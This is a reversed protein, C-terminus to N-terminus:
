KSAHYHKTNMSYTTWELNDAANNKKNGDKHHVMEAWEPRHCFLMAVLRHVAITKNIGMKKSQFNVKDYGDTSKAPSMVRGHKGKVNGESSVSYGIIGGLIEDASKWVEKCGYQEGYSFLTLQVPKPPEYKKGVHYTIM